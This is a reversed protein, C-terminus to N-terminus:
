PRFPVVITRRSRSFRATCTTDAALTVVGIACAADGIWGAFISGSDAVPTLTVRAGAYFLASCEIGCDIGAPDSTVRGSGRGTTIVTLHYTPLTSYEYAGMDYYRIAGGGRNPKAPDDFRPRGELDRSPAGDSTGADIAPSGPRLRYDGASPDVFRPDGSINGDLGVVATDSTICHVIQGPRQDGGFDKGGEVFITNRVSVGSVSNGTAGNHNAFISVGAHFEAGGVITNNVVQIGEVQNGSASSGSGGQVCVGCTGGGTIVNNVIQTDRIASETADFGALMQISPNQSGSIVNGAILVDELVNGFAPPFGPLSQSGTFTITQFNDRFTNRVIRVGSFRGNSGTLAIEFPFSNQSFTNESIVLNEFRGDTGGIGAGIADIEGQFRVFINNAITV